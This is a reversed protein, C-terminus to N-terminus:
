YPGKAHLINSVTGLGTTRTWVVRVHKFYVGSVNWAATGAGSVSQTSGTYDVWTANPNLNNNVNGDFGDNSIQLKITGAITDQVAVTHVGSGEASLDLETGAEANALSNALQFANDSIKIVFYDTATTVGTPLTGTTTLRVKLGTYFGHAPISIEDDTLDIESAVGATSQIGAVTGAGAETADKVVPNVVPGFATQTLTMTGNAASDDSTIAATFGTLLNFATEFLAAVSAADTAGSIDVLAKHDAATWIAGAPVVAALGTTDIALAYQVGAADEVVVFDGDDADLLAPFTLTQVEYVGSDFTSNGPTDNTWSSVVSLGDFHEVNLPAGNFSADMSLDSDTRTVVKM